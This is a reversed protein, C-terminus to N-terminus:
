FRKLIDKIISKMKFSTQSMDESYYGYGYGYTYSNNGGAKVGNLIVNLKPIKHSKYLLDLHKVQEKFTVEQRVIYITTDAIRSLIQADTVLGIPPADVVIEDFNQKLYSFLVDIEDQLLLESPNPPIPGSGIISLNPNITMAQIIDLLNVKGILFNSLGINNELKLYKSVKPKRLDFELLVTKKGSIAFATALNSAVFTKGEGSMSSTFLTVKGVGPTNKGHLFQMNTRIARFQESIASRSNENVVIPEVSDVNLLQGLVPTSTLEGLNSLSEVKDNLTKKGFLYGLPLILGLLFSSLYVMAKKPKIPAKSYYAPDVTRSDAVASAYSLAAEEKKQLLYLYLSEKITQQRKISILQREQGPVKEISNKFQSNNGQLDAKTIKLSKYINAISTRIGARTTEIQRTIPVVVPNNETTTALLQDRQLQLEGLQTIQGLLVPDNIGLTSPLKEHVSNTNIYREIDQIVSIQLNVENLKADNMKVNELFLNADNSLDTLGRSSKFTEVDKEVETLEGTILKLREDIFQITSQTTKNKDTLAAENYVQILTNLIDAGKEPVTSQINLNLVTSQKSSLTVNLDGIFDNAVLMPDNIAVSINTMPSLSFQAGKNVQFVGFINRQLKGLQGKVVKNSAIDSLQYTTSNPFSLKLIKGYWISSMQVVGIHVIDNAYLDSSKITGEASLSVSLNLRDVVKRMLTKSKLIEIENDVVKSSGFLDLENLLDGNSPTGGKDQDKILLTSSVAYIQQTYRLYFYAGLLCMILSLLFIPWHYTYRNLIERLNVSPAEEGTTVNSNFEENNTM